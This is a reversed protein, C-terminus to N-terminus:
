AAVYVVALATSVMPVASVAPASRISMLEIVNMEVHRTLTGRPTHFSTRKTWVYPLDTSCTLNLLITPFVLGTAEGVRDVEGARAVLDERVTAAVKRKRSAMVMNPDM